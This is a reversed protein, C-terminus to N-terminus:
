SQCCLGREKGMLDRILIPAHVASKGCGDADIEDARDQMVRGGITAYYRLRSDDFIKSVIIKTNMQVLHM